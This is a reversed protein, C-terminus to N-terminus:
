FIGEVFQKEFFGSSIYIEYAEQGRENHLILFFIRLVCGSNHPRAFKSGFHNIKGLRFQIESFGNLKVYRKAGKITSNLFFIINKKLFVISMIKIYKKAGKILCFKLFIRLTSGSNHCRAIKPYSHGM